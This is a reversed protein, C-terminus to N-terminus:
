EFLEPPLEMLMCLTHVQKRLMEVEAELEAIKEDQSQVVASSENNIRERAMAFLADWIDDMTM